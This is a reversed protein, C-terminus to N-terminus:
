DGLERKPDPLRTMRGLRAIVALAADADIAVDFAKIKKVTKRNLLLWSVVCNTPTGVEALYAALPRRVVRGYMGRERWAAYGLAAASLGMVTAVAAADIGTLSLLAGAAAAGFLRHSFRLGGAMPADIQGLTAGLKAREDEDLDGLSPNDPVFRESLSVLYM